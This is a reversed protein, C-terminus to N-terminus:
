TFTLTAQYFCSTHHLGDLSDFDLKLTHTSYAAFNFPGPVFIQQIPAGMACPLNGGAARYYEIDIGDLTVYLRDYATDRLEALGTVLISMTLPTPGTHITATATGSQRDNCTGGCNLSDVMDYRATLNNPSITWANPDCPNDITTVWSISFQGVVPPPQIPCSNCDGVDTIIVDGGVTSSISNELACLRINSYNFSVPRTIINNNCDTYTIDTVDVIPNLSVTYCRCSRCDLDSTCSAGVIPTATGTGLSVISQVCYKNTEGPYVTQVAGGGCPIYKLEVDQEGSPVSINYCGCGSSPSTSTTTTTSIPTSTTTSTTTPLNSTTTSSTTSPNKKPICKCGPYLTKIKSSIQNVSFCGAYDCNCARYTLIRKYNLLDGMVEGPFPKNLAFVINNYQIKALDALKHDIDCLLASINSCEICESLRPSLMKLNKLRKFLQQNVSVVFDMLWSVDV